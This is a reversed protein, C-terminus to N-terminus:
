IAVAAGREVWQAALNHFMLKINVNREVQQGAERLLSIVRMADEAQESDEGADLLQERAYRSLLALMHRVGDKNAADKSANKHAKVWAQAFEEVLRGLTEGLAPPFAGRSAEKLMPELTQQWQYFGYKAALQAMGPSGAAFRELWRREDAAGEIKNRKFWAAMSEDDLLSFRVHQSRSHITPLLRQPQSTVLFIFTQLPPEELTKLLVNQANQDLLEAEDIIFVKNHGLVARLYAPSTHWQGNSTQGGVMRERLVDMPINSLKRTRITRDDSYVALEKYILHLDPHTGADILRNSQSAPDSEIEGGFNPQAAPDLLIRATEKAATFKGVGKPGSFIWAHHFRGSALAKQLIRTANDQGLLTYMAGGAYAIVGAVTM